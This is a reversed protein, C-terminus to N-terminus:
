WFFREVTLGDGVSVTRTKRQQEYTASVTYDGPELQVLFWPGNSVAHVALPGGEPTVAVIVDAVYQGGERAFVLKLDFADQAKELAMREGEGVGGSIYEVRNVEEIADQQGAALTGAAALTCALLLAAAAPWRRPKRISM